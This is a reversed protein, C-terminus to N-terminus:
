KEQSKRHMIEDMGIYWAAIIAKGGMMHLWWMFDHWGQETNPLYKNDTRKYFDYKM